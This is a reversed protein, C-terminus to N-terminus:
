ATRRRLRLLAGGALLAVLLALGVEGLTPIEAASAVDFSTPDTAGPLAPDDTPVTSENSGNGDADFNITGQNTITQGGATDSIRATITVTVSGSAAIAGNWTVTNTALTAVATGSTASASLLVLQSPLVDVLENGPNDAQAAGSTNVITVTYTVTGGPVFTGAVTKTSGLTAPSSVVFSTPDTAGGAGPDDTTAAAENAGNGDADFSVAAQNSITTFATGPNITANITVTVSGGAPVVGDWTVTNTAITATATGATASASVLTLSPPLVDTLEPGSNNQQDFAASNSLVVTYTVAGGENFTGTVTKTATVTAPSLVTATASAANDANDPDSTSASALGNNTLAGAMNPATVTIALTASAGPNLTALNWLGTAPNYVGQSATFSTPNLLPQAPFAEQVDVAFAPDGTGEHTVTLTYTLSGGVLATPSSVSMALALDASRPALVCVESRNNAANTDLPSAAGVQAVNCVPDSTEVTAVIQLTASGAAALNGVTWLGLAPDYAGGSNDSVWSIGAPLLDSVVVGTAAGPGNNTVQLTFTVNQGFAPSPV